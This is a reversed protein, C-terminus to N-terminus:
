TTVITGPVITVLRRLSRLASRNETCDWPLSAADRGALAQDTIAKARTLVAERYSRTWTVVDPFEYQTIATALDDLVWLSDYGEPHEALLERWAPASWPDAADPPEDDEGVPKALPFVKRWEREFDELAPPTVLLVRAGAPIEGTPPADAPALTYGPLPRELAGPLARLFASDDEPLEALTAELIAGVPDKIAADFLAVLEEDEQHEALERWAAAAQRAEGDRRTAVLLRLHLVGFRPEDPVDNVAVELAEFAEEWAGENAVVGCMIFAAEARLPSPPAASSVTTLMEDQAEFDGLDEYLSSLMSFLEASEDDIYRLPTTFVPELCAAAAELEDDEALDMAYEGLPWLPVRGQAVLRPVVDPPITPLMAEWAYEPNVGSVAAQFLRECCHKYKNGSGCFCPENRGPEPLSHGRYDNFETPMVRWLARALAIAIRRPDVGETVEPPLFAPAPEAALRAVMWAEFGPYEVGERAQAAAEDVVTIWAAPQTAETPTPDSM